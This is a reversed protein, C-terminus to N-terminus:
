FIICLNLRLTSFPPPPHLSVSFFSSVFSFFCALVWFRDSVDVVLVLLLPFLMCLLRSLLVSLLVLLSLLLFLSCRLSFSLLMMFVVLCAILCDLLFVVSLEADATQENKSWFAKMEGNIVSLILGSDTVIVLTNGENLINFCYSFMDCDGFRAYQHAVSYDTMPSASRLHGSESTDVVSFFSFCLFLPDLVSLLSLWCFSSLPFCLFPFFFFSCSFTDDALLLYWASKKHLLFLSFFLFLFIVGLLASSHFPLLVQKGSHVMSGCWVTSFLASIM